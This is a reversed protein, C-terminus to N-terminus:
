TACRAAIEYHLFLHAGSRRVGLLDRRRAHGATARKGAVMGLRTRGRQPGALLPSLTLFLEDVLREGLMSGFVHPGAEVAVM